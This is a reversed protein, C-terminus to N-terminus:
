NDSLVALVPVSSQHNDDNVACVQPAAHRPCVSTCFFRECRVNVLIIILEEFAFRYGICKRPGEVFLCFKKLTSGLSCMFVICIVCISRIGGFPLFAFKSRSKCEDLIDVFLFTLLVSLQCLWCNARGVVRVQSLIGVSLAFNKFM